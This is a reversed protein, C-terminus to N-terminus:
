RLRDLERWGIRYNREATVLAAVFPEPMPIEQVAWSSALGYEEPIAIMKGDKELEFECREMGLSIGRGVAKVFAEKKTWLRYFGVLQEEPTSLRWQNLETESFVRRALADLSSRLNVGEVDIGIEPFDAVAILMQDGSHSLNFHLSGCPLHPKGYEGLEFRLSAPDVKLYGALCLRLLGRVAVFRDKLLPTKFNLAKAREGVDLFSLLKETVQVSMSLSGSWIDVFNSAM